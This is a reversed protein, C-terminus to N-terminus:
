LLSAQDGGADAYTQVKTFESNDLGQDIWLEYSIVDDGGTSEPAYM